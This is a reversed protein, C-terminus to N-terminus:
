RGWTTRVDSTEAVVGQHAGGGALRHLAKKDLFTTVIKKERAIEAIRGIQGHLPGRQLYLHHLAEPDAALLELVPNVGYIVAM